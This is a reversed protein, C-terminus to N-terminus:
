DFADTEDGSDTEDTDEPPPPSAAALMKWGGPASPPELSLFEERTKVGLMKLAALYKQKELGKTGVDARNEESPIYDAKRDAAREEM